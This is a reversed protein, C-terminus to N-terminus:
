ELLYKDWYELTTVENYREKFERTVKTYEKKLKKVVHKYHKICKKLENKDCETVFGKNHLYDYNLIKKYRYCSSPNVFFVHVVRLEKLPRLTSGNYTHKQFRPAPIAQKTSELYRDYMYYSFQCDLM